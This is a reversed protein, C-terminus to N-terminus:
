ICCRSINVSQNQLEKIFFPLKYCDFPGKLRIMQFSFGFHQFPASTISAKMNRTQKVASKPVAPLKPIKWLYPLHIKNRRGRRQAYPDTSISETGLTPDMRPNIIFVCVEFVNKKKQM